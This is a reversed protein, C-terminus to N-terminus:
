VSEDLNGFGASNLNTMEVFKVDIGAQAWIKDTETEFFLNGAPGKSACNSGGDDCVAFVNVTLSKTIPIASVPEATFVAVILAAMSWCRASRKRLAPGPMLDELRM